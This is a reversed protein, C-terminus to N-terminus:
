INDSPSDTLHLFPFYLFPAKFDFLNPKFGEHVVKLSQTKSLGLKRHRFNLALMPRSSHSNM